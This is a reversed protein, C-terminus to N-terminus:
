FTYYPDNDLSSSFTINDFRENHYINVKIILNFAFFMIIM